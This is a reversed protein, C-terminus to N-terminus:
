RAEDAALAARALSRLWESLSQGNAKAARRWAKIVDGPVRLDVRKTMEVRDSM